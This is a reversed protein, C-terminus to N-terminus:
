SLRRSVCLGLVLIMAISAPEPVVHVIFSPGSTAPRWDNEPIISVVFYRAAVLDITYSGETALPDVSIEISDLKSTGPGFPLSDFGYATRLNGSQPDVRGIMNNQTIHWPSNATVQVVNLIGVSSTGLSLDVVSVPSGADLNLDLSFTAGPTVEVEHLTTSGPNNLSVIVAGLAGGPWAALLMTAILAPTKM